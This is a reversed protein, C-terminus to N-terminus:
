AIYQWYENEIKFFEYNQPNYKELIKILEVDTSFDGDLFFKFICLNDDINKTFCIKNHLIKIAIKCNKFDDFGKFEAKKGNGTSIISITNM